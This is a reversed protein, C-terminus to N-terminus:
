TAYQMVGQVALRRQIADAIRMIDSEERVVPDHVHITINGSTGQNLRANFQMNPIDKYADAIGRLGLELPTPSGPRLWWPIVLDRLKRSFEETKSICWQIASKIADFAWRLEGLPRLANLILVTMSDL